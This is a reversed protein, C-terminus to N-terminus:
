WGSAPESLRSVGYVIGGVLALLVIAAGLFPPIRIKTLVRVLPVLLYSLLLALVLPLLMARMFYMTYFVGLVFIGTLAISKIDAPRRLRHAVGRPPTTTEDAGTEELDQFAM